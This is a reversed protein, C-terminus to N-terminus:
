KIWPLYQEIFTALAKIDIIWAIVVLIGLAGFIINFWRM